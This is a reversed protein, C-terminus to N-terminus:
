SPIVSCPRECRCECEGGNSRGFDAESAAAGGEEICLREANSESCGMCNLRIVSQRRHQSAFHGVEKRLALDLRHLFSNYSDTNPIPLLSEKRELPHDAAHKLLTLISATEEELGEAASLFM